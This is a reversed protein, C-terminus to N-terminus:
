NSFLLTRNPLFKTHLPLRFSTWFHDATFSLPAQRPAGSPTAVRLTLFPAKSAEFFFPRSCMSFRLLTKAGEPAGSQLVRRFVFPGSLFPAGSIMWFKQRPFQGIELASKRQCRFFSCLVMKARKPLLIKPCYGAAGEEGPGKTESSFHTGPTVLGRPESFDLVAPQSQPCSGTLSSTPYQLPRCPVPLRVEDILTSFIAGKIKVDTPFLFYDWTKRRLTKRM